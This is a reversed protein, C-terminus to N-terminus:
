IELEKREEQEKAVQEQLAEVKKKQNEIDPTSVVNPKEQPADLFPAPTGQTSKSGADAM